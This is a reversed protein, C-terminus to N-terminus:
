VLHRRDPGVFPGDVRRREPHIFLREVEPEAPLAHVRARLEAVEEALADLRRVADGGPELELRDAM